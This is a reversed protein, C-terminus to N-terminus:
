QQKDAPMENNDTDQLHKEDKKKVETKSPAPGGHTEAKAAIELLQLLARSDTSHKRKKQSRKGRLKNLVRWPHYRCPVTQKYDLWETRVDLEKPGYM